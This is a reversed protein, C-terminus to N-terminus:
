ESTRARNGLAEPMRENKRRKQREIILRAEPGFLKNQMAGSVLGAVCKGVSAKEYTKTQYTCGDLATGRKAM